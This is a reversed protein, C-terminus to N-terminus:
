DFRFEDLLEQNIRIQDNERLAEVLNRIYGGFVISQKSSTLIQRIQEERSEFVEEAVESKEVMEFVVLTGELSIPPSLEGPKMFPVREHVMPSLGILDDVTDGSKFFATVTPRVGATAKDFGKAKSLEYFADAKQQNMEIRKSARYDKELSARILAM